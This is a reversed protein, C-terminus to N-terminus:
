SDDVEEKEVFYGGCRGVTRRPPPSPTTLAFLNTTLLKYRVPLPSSNTDRSIQYMRPGGNDTRRQPNAGRISRLIRLRHTPLRRIIEVKWRPLILMDNVFSQLNSIRLNQHVYTVSRLLKLWVDVNRRMASLQAPQVNMLISMQPHRLIRRVERSRIVRFPLAKQLLLKGFSLTLLKLSGFACRIYIFLSNQVEEKVRRLLTGLPPVGSLSMLTILILIRGNKRLRTVVIRIISIKYRRHRKASWHVKLPKAHLLLREWVLEM